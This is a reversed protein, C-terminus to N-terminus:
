DYVGTSYLDSNPNLVFEKLYEETSNIKQKRITEIVTQKCWSGYKPYKM